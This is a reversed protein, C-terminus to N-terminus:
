LSAASEIWSFLRMWKDMIAEVEARTVPEGCERCVVALTEVQIDMSDTAGCHVCCLGEFTKNAKPKTASVTAM